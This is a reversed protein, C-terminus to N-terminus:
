DIWVSDCSECNGDVDLAVGTHKECLEPDGKSDSTSWMLVALWFDGDCEERVRNFSREHAPYHKVAKLFAQRLEELSGAEPTGTVEVPHSVYGDTVPYRVFFHRGFGSIYGNNVFQTARAYAMCLYNKCTAIAEISDAGRLEPIRDVSAHPTSGVWDDAECEFCNELNHVRYRMMGKGLDKTQVELCRGRGCYPCRLKDDWINDYTGM